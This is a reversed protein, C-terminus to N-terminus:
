LTSPADTAAELTFFPHAGATDLVETVAESPAYIVLTQGAQQTSRVLSLLLQLGASDMETVESLDLRLHTDTGSSHAHWQALSQALEAARYISLEGAIALTCAPATM